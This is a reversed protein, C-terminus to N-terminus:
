PFLTCSSFYPSESWSQTNPGLRVTVSHESQFLTLTPIDSVFQTKLVHKAGCVATRTRRPGRACRRKPLCLTWWPSETSRNVQPAAFCARSFCLAAAGLRASPRAIGFANSVFIEQGMRGALADRSDALVGAPRPELNVCAATARQRLPRRLLLPLRRPRMAAPLATWHWRPAISRETVLKERERSV